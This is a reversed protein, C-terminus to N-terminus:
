GLGRASGAVGFVLQAAVVTRRGFARASKLGTIIDPRAAPLTATVLAGFLLPPVERLTRRRPYEDPRRRTGGRAAAHRPRARQGTRNDGRHVRESSGRGSRRGNPSFVSNGLPQM